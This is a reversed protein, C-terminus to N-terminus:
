GGGESPSVSSSFRWALPAIPNHLLLSWWVRAYIRAISRYKDNFIGLMAAMLSRLGSSILLLALVILAQAIGKHKLFHYLTGRYGQWVVVYPAHAASRGGLHIVEADPLFVISSGTERARVCLDCADEVTLFYEPDYGGIREFVSRRILLCAGSVFLPCQFKYSSFRDYCSRTFRFPLVRWLLVHLLGWRKHFSSHPRRDAYLNKPGVVGVDQNLDLFNVLKSLADQHLVTDPNLVLVYDGRCSGLAANNGAALGLNKQNLIARVNEFRVAYDAVMQGTEDPSANDVLVVETPVPQSLVSEICDPLENSSCYTVVVVSVRPRLNKPSGTGTMSISNTEM